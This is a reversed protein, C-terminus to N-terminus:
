ESRREGNAHLAAPQRAGSGDTEALWDRLEDMAGEKLSYVRVRADFAPHSEEVLGSQKLAKLHRSVAPPPLALAQALEGARLPHEGLLEIARRRHPDALTRLLQDLGASSPFKPAENM